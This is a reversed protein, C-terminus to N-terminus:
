APRHPQIANVPVTGLRGAQFDAIAEMIEAKTSMVFPGYQVVPERLPLGGIVFVELN